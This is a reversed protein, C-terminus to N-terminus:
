KRLPPTQDGPSTTQKVVLVGYLEVYEPNKYVIHSMVLVGYLEVYELNKYVIHSM